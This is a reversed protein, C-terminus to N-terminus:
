LSQPQKRSCNLGEFMIKCVLANLIALISPYFYVTYVMIQVGRVLRVRNLGSVVGTEYTTGDKTTARGRAHEFYCNLHRRKSPSTNIFRCYKPDIGPLAILHM